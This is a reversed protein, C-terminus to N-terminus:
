DLGLAKKVLSVIGQKVNDKVNEFIEVFWSAVISYLDKLGQWIKMLAQTLWSPLVGYFRSLSSSSSPVPENLFSALSQAATAFIPISYFDFSEEQSRVQYIKALDLYYLYKQQALKMSKLAVQEDTYSGYEKNEYLKSEALKEQAFRQALSAKKENDFAFFLITKETITDMFYFPSSPPIGPDPLQGEQLPALKNSQAAYFFGAIAFVVVILFFRFM